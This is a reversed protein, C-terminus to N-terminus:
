GSDCWREDFRVRAISAPRGIFAPLSEPDARSGLTRYRSSVAIAVAHRRGYRLREGFQRGPWPSCPLGSRRQGRADDRRRPHRPSRRRRHRARDRHSGEPPREPVSDADPQQGDHRREDRHGVSGGERRQARRRHPGRRARPSGALAAATKTTM